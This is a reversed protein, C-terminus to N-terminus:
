ADRSARVQLLSIGESLTFAMTKVIKYCSCVIRIHRASRVLCNIIKDLIKRGFTGSRVDCDSSQESRRAKVIGSLEEPHPAVHAQPLVKSIMSAAIDYIVQTAMKSPLNGGLEDRITALCLARM